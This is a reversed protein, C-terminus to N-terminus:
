RRKAIVPNKITGIREISVEVVDGPKLFYQPKRAFGIGGPTGTLIIDGPLLTIGSSIYSIIKSVSFIMNRTNSDQVVNGNVKCTIRLNNPNEVDEQLAIGPGIPCFTDLSKSWFFRIPTKFELDRATVDNAAMYGLVYKLADKESVNKCKTGIVVALEAEYDVQTSIKPLVIPDYPGIISSPAKAFIVPESPPTKGTERIHDLYNLGVCIIKTPNQVPATLKVESIPYAADEISILSEINERVLNVVDIIKLGRKILKKPNRPAERGAKIKAEMESYGFSILLQFYANNIDLILDEVIVGSYIKRSGHPKFAVLMFDGLKLM